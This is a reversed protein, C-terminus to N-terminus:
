PRSYLKEFSDVMASMGHRSHVLESGRTGLEHRLDSDDALRKASAAYDVPDGETALFGTVGDLVVEPLGLKNTAIIPKGAAMAALITLPVGEWRSTLMYVDCADILHKVDERRGLMKVRDSDAVLQHTSEYLDGDGVVVFVTSDVQENVLLATKVFTHPDKQETLRGVMLIMVKEESIGLKVRLDSLVASDSPDDFNIGTYICLARKSLKYRNAERLDHESELVLDHHLWGMLKELQLFLLFKWRPMRSNFAFGHASHIRIPTRAFWAALGGLLRSKSGHSHIVDIDHNRLYRYLRYLAVADGWVTNDTEETHTPKMMDLMLVDDNCNAARTEWGGGPGTALRTEFRSEDINECLTLEYDTAGGFELTNVFQLVSIKKGTNNTASM